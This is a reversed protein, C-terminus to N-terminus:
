IKERSKILYNWEGHFSNRHINISKMETDSVKKGTEYRNEDLVARIKLGTKNSTKAIL